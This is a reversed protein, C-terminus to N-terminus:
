LHILLKAATSSCLLVSLYIYIKIPKLNKLYRKKVLENAKAEDGEASKLSNWYLAGIEWDEIMM